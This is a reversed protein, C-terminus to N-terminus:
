RTHVRKTRVAEIVKKKDFRVIDNGLKTMASDFVGKECYKKATNFAVGLFSALGTYGKIVDEDADTSVKVVLGQVKLFDVFEGVTIDGLRTQGNITGSEM